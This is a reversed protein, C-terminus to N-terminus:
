VGRARATSGHVAPRRARGRPHVVVRVEESRHHPVGDEGLGGGVRGWGWSCSWRRGLYRRRRLLPPPPRGPVPGPGEGGGGGGRGRPLGRRPLLLLVVLLDYAEDAEVPSVEDDAIPPAAGLHVMGGADLPVVGEELPAALPVAAPVYAAAALLGRHVVHAVGAGEGDAFDADLM